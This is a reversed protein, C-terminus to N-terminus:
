RLQYFFGVEVKGFASIDSTNPKYGKAELRFGFRQNVYYRVGGGFNVAFDTGGPEDSPLSHVLGDVGTYSLAPHREFHTLAGVGFVLYPVIPSERIPIRIHVGGHFDSLPTSYTQQAIINTLGPVPQTATRAIGPFYSYEAYPLLWRNIAYTVNGGGMFRYKDVGYSAGVFGGIEFSGSRVVSTVGQGSCIIPLFVGGVLAIFASHLPTRWFKDAVVPFKCIKLLKGL